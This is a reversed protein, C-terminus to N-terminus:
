CEREGILYGGMWRAPIHSKATKRGTLVDTGLSSCECSIGRLGPESDTQVSSENASEIIKTKLSILSRHKNAMNRLVLEFSGDGMFAASETKQQEIFLTDGDLRGDALCGLVSRETRSLGDQQSPRDALLRDIARGLFQLAHLDTERRLIVLAEPDSSTFAEWVKSALDLQGRSVTVRNEYDAALQDEPTMAVFHDHCIISCSPAAATLRGFEFLLQILQLQDYLDHEFWLILESRQLPGPLVAQFFAQDREEFRKRITAEEGWGCSAIYAARIDSLDKLSATSPVPGDHLVDDWSICDAKIGVAAIANVASSGNTIILRSM